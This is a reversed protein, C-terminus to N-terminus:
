RDGGAEDPRLAETLLRDEGGEITGGESRTGMMEVMLTLQASDKTVV